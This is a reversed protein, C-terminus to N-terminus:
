GTQLIEVCVCLKLYCQDLSAESMQEDEGSFTLFSEAFYGVLM